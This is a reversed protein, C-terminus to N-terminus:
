RTPFAVTVPAPRWDAQEATYRGLQGGDNEGWCYLTGSTKLACTHGGGASVSMWDAADDVRVPTRRDTDYDQLGLQGTKNSGWCWLAGATDIACTHLGGLTVTAWTRESVRVPRGQDDKSGDGVQGYGNDGWCWLSGDSQIGCTNGQSVYSSTAIARWQTGPAVRVPTITDIFTGDGLQGGRNSGWCYLAGDPHTIACTHLTGAAVASWGDAGAPPTVLMPYTSGTAAKGLVFLRQEGWCYLRTAALGCAHYTALSLDTWAFDTSAARVPEHASRVGGNGYQVSANDGWCWLTGDTRIACTNGADVYSGAAVTMWEGGTVGRPYPWEVLDRTGLQGSENEGWCLLAGDKKIGCTHFSGAATHAPPCAFRRKATKRWM